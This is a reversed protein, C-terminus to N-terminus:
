VQDFLAFREHMPVGSGELEVSWVAENTFLGGGEQGEEADGERDNKHSRLMVMKRNDAEPELYVVGQM